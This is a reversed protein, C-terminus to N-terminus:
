FYSVGNINYITIRDYFGDVNEVANFWGFCLLYGFILYSM